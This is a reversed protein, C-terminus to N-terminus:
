YFFRYFFVGGEVEERHHRVLDRHLEFDARTVVLRFYPSPTVGAPLDNYSWSM